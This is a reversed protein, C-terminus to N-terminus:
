TVERTDVDASGTFFRMMRGHFHLRVTNGRGAQFLVRTFSLGCKELVSEFLSFYLLLRSTLLVLDPGLVCGPYLSYVM